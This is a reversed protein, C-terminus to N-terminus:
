GEFGVDGFRGYVDPSIFACERRGTSSFNLSTSERVSHFDRWYGQQFRFAMAVPTM